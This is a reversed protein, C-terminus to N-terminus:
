LMEYYFTKQICSQCSSQTFTNYGQPPISLMGPGMPISYVLVAPIPGSLCNCKFDPPHYKTPGEQRHHCTTPQLQHHCLRIYSTTQLRLRWPNAHPAQRFYQSWYLPCQPSLGTTPYLNGPDPLYSFLIQPELLSRCINWPARYLNRTYMVLWFNTFM